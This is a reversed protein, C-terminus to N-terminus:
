SLAGISLIILVAAAYKFYEAILRIKFNKRKFQRFQRDVNMGSDDQHIGSLAWSNITDNYIKRNEPTSEIWDMIAKMESQDTIEGKVFDVLREERMKEAKKYYLGKM